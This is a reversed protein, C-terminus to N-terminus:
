GYYPFMREETNESRQMTFM